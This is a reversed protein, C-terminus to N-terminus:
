SFKFWIEPDYQFHCLMEFYRDLVWGRTIFNILYIGLDLVWGRTRFNILYIDLDM